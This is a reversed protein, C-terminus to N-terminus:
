RHRHHAADKARQVEWQSHNCGEGRCNYGSIERPCEDAEAAAAFCCLAIFGVVGIAFWIM